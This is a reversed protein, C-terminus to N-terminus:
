RDTSLIEKVKILFLRISEDWFPWNHGGPVEHYEYPWASEALKQTLQRHGPLFTRFGDQIGHRLFLYPREVLLTDAAMRYLDGSVRNPHDGDGFAEFLSLGSANSPPETVSIPLSSPYVVAGSFSGALIYRHPESMGMYLAGYGGMSLGAVIQTTTDAQHHDFAWAQLEQKYFDSFKRGDLLNQYWSNEGDPMIVIIDLDLSDLYQVLRTRSTWNSHDGSYGHLLYLVPHRQGDTISIPKIIRVNRFDGTAESQLSDAVWVRQAQASTSLLLTSCFFLLATVVSRSIIDIM